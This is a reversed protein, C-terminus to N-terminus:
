GGSGGALPSVVEVLAEATVTGMEPGGDFLWRVAREPVELVRTRLAAGVMAGLGWPAGALAAAIGTSRDHVALLRYVDYLDSARKAPQRTRGGLLAGSKMAVLAAATAVPITASADGAVLVARTATDLAWRHSAVFLRDAPELGDLDEPRVPGTDVLDVTIGDVVVRGPHGTGQAAVGAALLEVASPETVEAVADVDQTARHVAALRCMVALGGILAHPGLTTEGLRATVQVLRAAAGDRDGALVIRDGSM